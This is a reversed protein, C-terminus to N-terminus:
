SAFRLITEKAMMSETFPVKLVILRIAEGPVVRHAFDVPILLPLGTDSSRRFCIIRHGSIIGKHGVESPHRSADAM